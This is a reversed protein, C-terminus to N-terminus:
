TVDTIGHKFVAMPSPLKTWIYMMASWVASFREYLRLQLCGQGKCTVYRIVPPNARPTERQGATGQSVRAAIMSANERLQVTPHMCSRRGILM